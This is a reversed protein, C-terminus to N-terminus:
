FLNDESYVSGNVTKVLKKLFHGDFGVIFEGDEYPFHVATQTQGELAMDKEDYMTTSTVRLSSTSLFPKDDESICQVTPVFKDLDTFNGNFRVKTYTEM